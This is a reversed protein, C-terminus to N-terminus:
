FFLWLNLWCKYNNYNNCFSVKLIDRNLDEPSSVRITITVGQEEIGGGPKVENSRYGCEDCSTAM